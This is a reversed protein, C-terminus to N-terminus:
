ISGTRLLEFFFYQSNKHSKFRRFMIVHDSAFPRVAVTPANKTEFLLPDSLSMKSVRIALVMNTSGGAVCRGLAPANELTSVLPGRFKIADPSM